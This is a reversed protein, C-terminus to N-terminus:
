RRCINCCNRRIVDKRHRWGIMSDNVPIEMVMPPIPITIVVPIVLTKIPIMSVVAPFMMAYMTIIAVIIPIVVFTPSVVPSKLILSHAVIPVSHAVILITGTVIYIPIPITHPVLLIMGTVFNSRIPITHAVLLIMGTVFCIMIAIQAFGMIM